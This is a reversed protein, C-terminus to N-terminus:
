QFEEMSITLLPQTGDVRAGVFTPLADSYKPITSGLVPLAPTLQSFAPAPCLPVFGLLLISLPLVKKIIRKPIM